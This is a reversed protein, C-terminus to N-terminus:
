EPSRRLTAMKGLVGDKRLLAHSLAGALHLAVAVGLVWALGIHLVEYPETVTAADSGPPVEILPPLTLFGFITPGSGSMSVLLWGSLPMAFLILYFAIQNLRAMVRDWQPTDPPLAPARPSVLRVGVRVAMLALITIGLTFHVNWLPSQESPILLAGTVQVIVAVAILWHMLRIAFAWQRGSDRRETETLTTM